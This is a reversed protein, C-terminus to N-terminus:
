NQQSYLMCFCILIDVDDIEVINLAGFGSDNFVVGSELIVCISLM